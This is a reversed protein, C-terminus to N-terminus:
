GPVVRNISAAIPTAFGRMGDANPHVPAAVSNPFVGEVWKTGPLACFDRGISPTAIDVYTAGAAKAQTRLMRNLEKVKERLYPVDEPLVPVVPYCGLGTEPLVTPYGIVFTEARPAREGIATLVAAVKPAAAAIRDSLEDGGDATYQSACGMTPLATACRTVIESFGIDNGGIGLTVIKTQRDLAELQPPNAPGPEVNQAEFMHDTRAGSCSVDTFKTSALNGSILRPYNNTSRLCGLPDDQQEPILPGAVFSDGLAVYTDPPPECATLGGAAIIAVVTSVAFTLPRRHPRM